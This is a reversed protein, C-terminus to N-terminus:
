VSSGGNYISLSTTGRVLDHEVEEINWVGSFRAGFGYLIAHQDVDAVPIAETLSVQMTFIKKARAAAKLARQEAQKSYSPEVDSAITLGTRDLQVARETAEDSLDAGQDDYAVAGDIDYINPTTGATLEDVDFSFGNTVNQGMRVEIADVQEAGVPQVHVTGDRTRMAYGLGDLVRHLTEADTEGHQLAGGFQITELAPAKSLDVDLGADGALTRVLQAATASTLNKAKETRRMGKSKDVSTLSLRGPLGSGRLGSFYGAYVKELRPAFGFWCEVPVRRSASKYPLPLANALELRPDPVTWDLSSANKGERLTLSGSLLRGARGEDVDTRWQWNGGEGLSIVAIARQDRPM